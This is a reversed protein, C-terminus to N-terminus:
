KETDPPLTFSISRSETKAAVPTKGSFLSLIRKREPYEKLLELCHLALERRGNRYATEYVTM